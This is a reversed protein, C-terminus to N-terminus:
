AELESECGLLACMTDCSCSSRPSDARPLASVHDRCALARYALERRAGLLSNDSAESLAGRSFSRGSDQICGIADGCVFTGAAPPGADAARGSCAFDAAQEAQQRRLRRAVPSPPVAVSEASGNLRRERFIRVHRVGAPLSVDEAAEDAHRAAGYLEATSVDGAGM